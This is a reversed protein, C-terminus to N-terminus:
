KCRDGEMAQKFYAAAKGACAVGAAAAGVLIPAGVGVPVLVIGCAGVGLSVAAGVSALVGLLVLESPTKDLEPLPMRDAEQRREDPVAVAKTTEVTTVKEHIKSAPGNRKRADAAKKQNERELKIFEAKAKQLEKEIKMSEAQKERESQFFVTISLTFNPLEPHYYRTKM